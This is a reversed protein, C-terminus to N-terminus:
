FTACGDGSQPELVDGDGGFPFRAGMPVREGNEGGGCGKAVVLMSETNISIGIKSM